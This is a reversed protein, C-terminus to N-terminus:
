IGHLPESGSEADSPSLNEGTAAADATEESGNGSSRRRLHLARSFDANTLGRALLGLGVTGLAAGVAGRRKLGALALTGGTAGALVRTVPPWHSQLPNYWRSSRGNEEEETVELRDEVEVVGKVSRVVSLLRVAESAPVPGSLVVCGDEVTVEIAGPHSVHRGMKSRVRAILVEESPEDRRLRSGVGAALGKARNGVNKSTKVVVGSGQRFAHAGKDKVLSRRRRGGDPDLLYMLGAGVGVGSLLTLRQQKNM